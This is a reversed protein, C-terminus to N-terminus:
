LNHKIFYFIATPAFISFIYFFTILLSLWITKKANKELAFYNTLLTLFFFMLISLLLMAIFPM